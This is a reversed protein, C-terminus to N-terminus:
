KKAATARDVSSITNNKNTFNIQFDGYYAFNKNKRNNLQVEISFNNLIEGNKPIRHGM